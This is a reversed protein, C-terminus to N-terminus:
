RPLSPWTARRAATDHDWDAASIPSLDDAWAADGAQGAVVPTSWALAAIGIAIGVGVPWTLLRSVTTRDRSM